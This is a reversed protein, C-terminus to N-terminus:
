VLLNKIFSTSSICTESDFSCNNLLEFYHGCCHVNVTFVKILLLLTKNLGFATNRRPNLFIELISNLAELGLIEYSSGCKRLIRLRSMIM